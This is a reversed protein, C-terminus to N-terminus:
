IFPSVCPVPIQANKGREDLFLIGFIRIKDKLNKLYKEVERRSVM